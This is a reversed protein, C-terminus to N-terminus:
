ILPGNNRQCTYDEVESWPAGELATGSLLRKNWAFDPGRNLYLGRERQNKAPYVIGRGQGADSDVFEFQAKRIKDGADLVDAGAARILENDNSILSAVGFAMSARNGSDVLINVGTKRDWVPVDDWRREIRVIRRPAVYRGGGGEEDFVWEVFDRSGERTGDGAEYVVRFTNEDFKDDYQLQSLVHQIPGLQGVDPKAAVVGRPLEDDIRRLDTGYEWPWTYWGTLKAPRSGPLMGTRKRPWAPQDADFLWLPFHLHLDHELKKTRSRQANLRQTEAM